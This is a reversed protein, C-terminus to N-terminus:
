ARSSIPLHFPVKAYEVCISLLYPELESTKCHINIRKSSESLVEKVREVHSIRLFVLSNKFKHVFYMWETM